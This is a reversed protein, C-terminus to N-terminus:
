RPPSIPSASMQAHHPRDHWRSRRRPVRRRLRRDPSDVIHHIAVVNPHGIRALARAERLVRERQVVSPSVGPSDDSRVEKLAVERHLAIDYARWWREWEM